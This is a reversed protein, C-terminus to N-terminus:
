YEKIENFEEDGEFSIKGKTNDAVTSKKKNDQILLHSHNNDARKTQSSASKKSEKAIEKKYNQSVFADDNKGTVIGLLNKVMVNLLEVQSQLEEASSATEESSSANSQVVQDFQIIAKNVQGIGIDQQKSASEVEKSMETVKRINGLIEKFTESLNKAIEIGNDIKAISEKIMKATEKASEASKNALSKVEDAVVAFGMGAEGARAAEVAANLALMNTQFAIDDIVDIVNKIEDSSKGIDIMSEYMKEMQQYGNQSIDSTKTALISAQQSSEANQRVMSALEEMSATTEEISSAQEVAGNSIDQSARSLQESASAIQMSGASLENSINLLPKSIMFVGIWIALFISVILGTIIISILILTSTNALKANNDATQKALDLKSEILVNIAEQEALASKKGDGLLIKTAEDIKNENALLIINDLHGRYVKRTEEFKNYEKRGEETLITKEFANINEVIRESLDNIVKSIKQREDKDVTDLLERVNIRARQFSETIMLLNSIPITMKEYLLTDAKEIARMNVIGVIGIVTGIVAVAIFGALLKTRLKLSM